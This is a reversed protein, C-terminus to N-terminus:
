EEETEEIFIETKIKKSKKFSYGLGCNIKIPISPIGSYNCHQEKETIELLIGDDEDLITIGKREPRIIFHGHKIKTIEM